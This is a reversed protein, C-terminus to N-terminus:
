TNPERGGKVAFVRIELYLEKRLVDTSFHYKYGETPNSNGTAEIKCGM